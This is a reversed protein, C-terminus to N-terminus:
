QRTYERSSGDKDTLTLTSKDESISYTYTVSPTSFLTITTSTRSYAGTQPPAVTTSISITLTYRNSEFEYTRSSLEVEGLMVSSKWKGILPHEEKTCSYM